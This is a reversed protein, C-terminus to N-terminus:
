LSKARNELTLGVMFAICIETSDAEDNFVCEFFFNIGIAMWASVAKYRQSITTDDDRAVLQRVMRKYTLHCKKHMHNNVARSTINLGKFHQCLLDTVDNCSIIPQEHIKEFIFATNKDNLNSKAGTKKSSGPFVDGGNNCAENWQNVCRKATSYPM